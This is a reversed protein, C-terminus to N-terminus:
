VAKPVCLVSEKTPRGLVLSQTHQPPSRLSLARNERTVPEVLSQSRPACGLLPQSYGGLPNKEQGLTDGLNRWDWHPTEM